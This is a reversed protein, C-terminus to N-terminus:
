NGGVGSGNVGAILYFDPYSIEGNGFVYNGTTSCDSYYDLAFRYRSIKKSYSYFDTFAEPYSTLDMYIPKNYM